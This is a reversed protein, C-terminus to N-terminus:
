GIRALIRASYRHEPARRATYRRALWAGLGAGAANMLVDDVSSYRGLDLVYQAIELSASLAAGLLTPGLVGAFRPFRLPLLFGLPLFLVTNATVQIVTNSSAETLTDILDRLPILIVQRQGDAPTLIMWVWPLTAGLMGAETVTHRLAQERPQGRRVRLRFVLAAGASLLPVALAWVVLVDGWSDWVQRVMGVNDAAARIVNRGPM